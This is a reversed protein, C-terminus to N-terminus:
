GNSIAQDRAISADVGKTVAAYFGAEQLALVGAITTGAPSSVMDALDWPNNGNALEEKMLAATGSIASTAIEDALKKPLGYKVGTRALADIYIATYAPSCGALASFVAFNEEPIEYVNGISNFINKALALQEAKVHQNATLASTSLGIKAAVNPMARVIPMKPTACMRDLTTLEIGAAISILLTQKAIFQKRIEGLVKPIIHPKIALVVVDAVKALAINDAASAIQREKAFAAAHEPHASAVIIDTVGNKLLGDIIAAGMNGIGIFGIKM